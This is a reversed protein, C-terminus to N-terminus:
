SKAKKRKMRSEKKRKFYEDQKKIRRLKANVFKGQKTAKAAECKQYLKDGSITISQFIDQSKFCEEETKIVEQCEDLAKAKVFKKQVRDPSILEPNAFSKSSSFSVGTKANVVTISQSARNFVDCWWRSTLFNSNDHGIGHTDNKLVTRIPKTMGNEKKGLGKGESWGYKELQKRAFDNM